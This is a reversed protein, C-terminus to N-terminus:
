AALVRARTFTVGKGSFPALLPVLEVVLAGAVLPPVRVLFEVDEAVTGAVVVGATVAGM